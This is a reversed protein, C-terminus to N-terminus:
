LPNGSEELLAGRMNSNKESNSFSSNTDRLTGTDGITSGFTNRKEENMTKGVRQSQLLNSTSNIADAGTLERPLVFSTKSTVATYDSDAIEKIPRINIVHESGKGEPLKTDGKRGLKGSKTKTKRHKKNKKKRDEQIEGSEDLEIGDIPNAIWYRATVITATSEEKSKTKNQESRVGFDPLIDILETVGKKKSDKYRRSRRTGRTDDTKEALNENINIIDARSVTFASKLAIEAISHSNAIAKRSRHDRPCVELLEEYGAIALALNRTRSGIKLETLTNSLRWVMEVRAKTTTDLEKRIRERCAKLDIENLLKLGVDKAERVGNNWMGDGGIEADIDIAGSGGGSMYEENISPAIGTQLFTLLIKKGRAACKMAEWLLFTDESRSKQGGTMASLRKISSPRTDSHGKAYDKEDEDSDQEIIEGAAAPHLEAHIYDLDKIKNAIDMNAKGGVIDGLRRRSAFNSLSRSSVGKRSIPQTSQKRDLNRGYKAQKTDDETLGFSVAKRISIRHEGIAGGDEKPM